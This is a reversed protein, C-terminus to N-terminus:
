ILIVSKGLLLIKAASYAADDWVVIVATRMITEMYVM